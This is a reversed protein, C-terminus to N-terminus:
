CSCEDYADPYDMLSVPSTNAILLRSGRGYGGEAKKRIKDRRLNTAVLSIIQRLCDAKEIGQFVTDYVVM